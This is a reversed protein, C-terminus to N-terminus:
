LTGEFLVKGGIGIREVGVKKNKNFYFSLMTKTLIAFVQHISNM